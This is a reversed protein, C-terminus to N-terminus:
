TEISDQASKAQELLKGIQELLLTFLESIQVKYLEGQCVRNLRSKRMSQLCVRSASSGYAKQEKMKGKM